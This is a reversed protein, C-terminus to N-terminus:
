GLVGGCRFMPECVLLSLEHFLTRDLPREGREYAADFPPMLQDFARMAHADYGGGKEPETKYEANAKELAEEPPKGGLVWRAYTESPAPVFPLARSQGRFYWGVLEDLVARAREPALPSLTVSCAGDQKPDRGVLTTPAPSGLASAALHCLWVAFLRRAKLRSYTASVIGGEFRGDLTARLDIGGALKVQGALPPLAAGARAARAREAIETSLKSISRLLIGGWPGHPLSGRGRFLNESEGLPRGDLAHEILPDGVKWADLPELELPERDRLEVKRPDLYVGLRRNLLYAPPSRWFRVLEALTIFAPKPPEPLEGVFSGASRGGAALAGAARAYDDAYSRLRPESGDFYSPSFGQLRHQVVLAREVVERKVGNRAALHEYLESLCVSPPNSRNDRISKGSYTVILRERAACLTELFLHRDDSRPSRDGARRELRGDHILDFELPRSARPFKGDTLGLLCVVRFPISRMPVMASFNVGAGLFGREPSGSDLTKAVLERVVAVDLEGGFGASEATRALESLARELRALELETDADSAFLRAALEAICAGWAPLTRARELDRLSAFLVRVFGALRGLLEADKGEIEDFPLVSEFIREGDGPLAYGVLLRELGFRWTNADSAPVDLSRRHEADMGWRIGSEVIWEKIRDISAPDLGLRRHVPGLVLLDSVDAATVRGRVMGLVRDLADIVPSEERSSRDAVHFPIFRPDARDRGFVAEVLPVYAKLDPVLVMVDEPAVPDDRRTLLALLEDHLVEVERMPGHCAHVFIAPEALSTSLGGFLRAPHPPAGHDHAVLPVGRAELTARLVEDCEAGMRDLTSLLTREEPAALHGAWFQFYHVETQRALAALVRIFLPPLTSLGFFSVRRPLGPPPVRAELRELLKEEVHAVHRRRLRESVRRFLLPQFRQDPPVGASGGGEFSRIWDPRYVLYQDFVGALKESLRALRTGREDGELYRRIDALEPADLLRPLEAHIAWRILGESLTEPGLAAEGLVTAVTREVFARPYLLPTAWIGFRGALERSLWVSMGRGPVVVVEPEFPGGAPEELLDGLVSVLREVRQSRHLHFSGM